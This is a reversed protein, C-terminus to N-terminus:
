TCPGGVACLSPSTIDTSFFFDLRKKQASPKDTRSGYPNHLSGAWSGPGIKGYVQIERCNRDTGLVKTLHRAAKRM